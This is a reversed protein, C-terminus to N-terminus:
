MANLELTKALFTINDQSLENHKCLMSFITKLEAKSRTIFHGRDKDLSDLVINFSQLYRAVEEGHGKFDIEIRSKGDKYGLICFSSITSNEVTSKFAMKRCLPAGSNFFSWDGSKHVFKAPKGSFHLKLQDHLHDNQVANNALITEINPIDQDVDEDSLARVCFNLFDQPLENQKSLISFITKLEYDSKAYFRGSYMSSQDITINFSQLYRAMEEEHGKFNLCIVSSGDKYKLIDFTSITSDAVTSRFTIQRRLLPEVYQFQELSHNFPNFKLLGMTNSPKEFKLYSWDGSEHIFRAAKGPFPLERNNDQEVDVSDNSLAQVCFDAIAQQEFTNDIHMEYAKELTYGLWRDLMPRKDQSIDGRAIAQDVYAPTIVQKLQRDIEEPTPVTCSERFLEESYVKFVGDRKEAVVHRTGNSDHAYLKYYAIRNDNVLIEIVERRKQRAEIFDEKLAWLVVCPDMGYPDRTLVRTMSTLLTADIDLIMAKGNRLQVPILVNSQLLRPSTLTYEVIISTNLSKTALEHLYRNTLHIGEFHIQANTCFLRNLIRTMRKLFHKFYDPNTSGTAKGNEDVANQFMPDNAISYSKGVGAQGRVAWVSPVENNLRKSLELAHIYQTSVIHMHLAVREAVWNNPDMLYNSDTMKNTDLSKTYVECTEMIPSCLALIWTRLEYSTRKFKYDIKGTRNEEDFVNEIIKVATLFSRANDKSLNLQRLKLSEQLYAIVKKEIPTLVNYDKFRMHFKIRFGALFEESTNEPKQFDSPTSSININM